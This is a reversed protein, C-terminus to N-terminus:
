KVFLVGVGATKYRNGAIDTALVKYTYWGKSWSCKFSRTKQRRNTPVTVTPFQTFRKGYRYVKITVKASGCSPKPDVVKYTLRIRTKRKAEHAYGVTKPRKRDLSIQASLLVPQEGEAGRYQAEITKLGDVGSLRWSHATAFPLWATWEGGADRFQMQTAGSVGSSDLRITVRKTATAPKTALTGSPAKAAPHTAALAAGPILLFVAAALGFVIVRSM